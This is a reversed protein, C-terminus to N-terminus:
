QEHDVASLEADPQQTSPSLGNRSAIGLLTLTDREVIGRLQERPITPLNTGHVLHNISYLAEICYSAAANPFGSGFLLKDAVGYQFAGLIAQYAQWPQHLLWSIEAYVNPHKALLVVTEQVWPYGMHAIIIKLTPFERAVEDLLMPRAYELKTAATIHVGTSFLVPMGREAAQAYVLMAQSNSPHFDQAAPSVVVGPMSLEDRARQLEAMAEEPNSPDIGAFGILRGPNAGVYAAIQDNSIDVELYRSRFGLVITTDVPESAALHRARGAEFPDPRDMQAPLPPPNAPPKCRGLPDGCEWTYTYCDVIMSSGNDAGARSGAVIALFIM